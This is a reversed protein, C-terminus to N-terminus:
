NELWKWIRKDFLSGIFDRMTEKIKMAEESPMKRIVRGSKKDKVTIYLEDIKENYSFEIDKNFTESEYNLEEVLKKTDNKNLSVEEKKVFESSNKNGERSLNLEGGHHFNAPPMKINEIM